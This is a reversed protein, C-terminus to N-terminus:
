SDALEGAEVAKAKLHLYNQLMEEAVEEDIIGQAMYADYQKRAMLTLRGFSYQVTTHTM